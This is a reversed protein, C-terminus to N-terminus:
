HLAKSSPRASSVGRIQQLVADAIPGQDYGRFSELDYVVDDYLSQFMSGQDGSQIRSNSPEPASM